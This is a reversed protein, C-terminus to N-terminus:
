TSGAGQTNAGPGPARGTADEIDLGFSMAVETIMKAAEADLKEALIRV